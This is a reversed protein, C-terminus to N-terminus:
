VCATVTFANARFNLYCQTNNDTARQDIRKLTLHVGDAPCSGPHSLLSDRRM